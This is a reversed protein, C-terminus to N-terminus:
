LFRPAQIVTKFRKPQGWIWTWIWIWAETLYTFNDGPIVLCHSGHAWNIQPSSCLKFSRMRKRLNRRRQKKRLDPLQPEQLVTQTWPGQSSVSIIVLFSHCYRCWKPSNVHSQPFQVEDELDQWLPMSQGHSNMGWPFVKIMASLALGKGKCAGKRRQKDDPWKTTRTHYQLKDLASCYFFM